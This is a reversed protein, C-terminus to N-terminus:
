DSIVTSQEEVSISQRIDSISSPMMTVSEVLKEETAVSTQLSIKASSKESPTGDIIDIFVIMNLLVWTEM